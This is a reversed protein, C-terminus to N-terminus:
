KGAMGRERLWSEMRDWYGATMHTEMVFSDGNGTRSQTFSHGTGPLRVVTINNRGAAALANASAETPVNHDLEGLFWLTPTELKALTAAPDYFANMKTWPRGWGDKSWNLPWMVRAWPRARLPAAYAEYEEWSAASLDFLKRAVTRVEQADAESFGAERASWVIEHVMTDGVNVASGARVIVFAIDKSRTAMLPATWGGQSSGHVGIRKGDIDARQKIFDVGALWDGALEEMGATHWDGGSEGAGRKDLSLVAVGLRAFFMNWVGVDRLADGSGHAFVVAPHPGKGAPLTLSGKLKIGGNDVTVAEVSHPAVRKAQVEKRGDRWRMGTVEGKANRTFDAQIVFPYPVGITPGSVFRSASLAYLPGERLTKQDIFILMGGMEGMVGIDIVHGPAVQYSGAVKANLAPDIGQAQVLTFTGQKAGATVTGSFRDKRRMGDFKFLEPGGQLEFKGGQASLTFNTVPVGRANMSPLDMASPAGPIGSRDHLIVGTSKGGITFDGLWMAGPPPGDQAFAASTALLAGLIMKNM